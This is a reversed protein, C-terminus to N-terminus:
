LIAEHPDQNDKFDVHLCGLTLTPLSATQELQRQLAIVRMELRWDPALLLLMQQGTDRDM